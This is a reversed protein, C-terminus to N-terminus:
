FIKKLNKEKKLSFAFALTQLYITTSLNALQTTTEETVKVVLM